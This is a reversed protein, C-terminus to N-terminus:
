PSRKLKRDLRSLSRYDRNFFLLPEESVGVKLADVRAVVILHDGGESESEVSCDLWALSHELHPLGSDSYTWAVGAFKDNGSRAFQDSVPKARKNLVNVSFQGIRSIKPWTSSTRSVCILILPPDLSLSTFAQCTFGVPGSLEDHSAVVTLGSCFRALIRRMHEPSVADTTQRNVPEIPLEEFVAM